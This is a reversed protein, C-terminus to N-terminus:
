RREAYKALLLTMTLPEVSACQPNAVFCFPNIVPQSNFPSTAESTKIGPYHNLIFQQKTHINYLECHKNATQQKHMNRRQLNQTIRNENCGQFSVHCRFIWWKFIYNRNFISIIWQWILKPSHLHNRNQHALHKRNKYPQSNGAIGLLKLLPLDDGSLIAPYSASFSDVVMIKKQSISRRNFRKVKALSSFISKISLTSLHSGVSM